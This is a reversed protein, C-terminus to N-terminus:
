SSGNYRYVEYEENEDSVIIIMGDECTLFIDSGAKELRDITEPAPHGYNNRQSCSIVTISPHIRSLLTESSSYKSGHHPCQLIDIKEGEKMYKIYESESYMDSDGTFLMNIAGSTIKVVLSAQNKDEYIFGPDPALAELKLGDDEFIVESASVYRVAIGKEKALSVLEESEDYNIGVVLEKVRIRGNEIIESIGNIHDADTHSVIVYDLCGCGNWLLFPEIRYKGVNKVNSSGGDALIKKGSTEIYVSLGQGVDTFASYFSYGNGRYLVALFMLFVAPAFLFCCRHKKKGISRSFFVMMFFLVYYFICGIIRPCGCIIDAGPMELLFGSVKRYLELLYYGPGGAINGLVLFVNGAGALFLSGFVGAMLGSVVIVSMFPILLLNAFVSYPSFSYYTRLIIPFTALQAFCGPILYDLLRNKIKLNERIENGAFIGYVACFSLQFGSEFLQSPNFLLIILAALAAASQGDYAMGIPKAVLLCALMIVARQTSVSFGTLIGYLFIFAISLIVSVKLNGTLMMFLRFLALGLLTIHLGSISLIHAIGIRKYIDKTSEDLESRNGALMAALIGSGQEDYIVNLGEQFTGSIDFLFRKIKGSVTGNRALIMCNDAYLKYYIGKAGYYKKQDFQGYNTAPRFTYLSGKASILDGTNFDVPYEYYILLSGESTHDDNEYEKKFRINPNEVTILYKESSLSIETVIGTIETDKRAGDFDLMGAEQELKESAIVNGTFFSSIIILFVLLRRDKLYAKESRYIYLISFLVFSLVLLYIETKEGTSCFIGAALFVAAPVM